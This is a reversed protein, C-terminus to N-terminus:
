KTTVCAFKYSLLFNRMMWNAGHHVEDQRNVPDLEPWYISCKM